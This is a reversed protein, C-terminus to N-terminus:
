LLKKCFLHKGDCSKARFDFGERCFACSIGISECFEEIKKLMKLRLDKKLYWYGGIKEGDKFYLERLMEGFNPISKAIRRFSDRKLKLTSTVVHEPDCKEILDFRNENMFPIIPDFRLVTPLNESIKLFAFIRRETSPAFKELLDCGTISMSVVANMESLVDLDRLVIDSKTVILVKADFERFLKLCERTIEKEKEVPPYPDSSNSMSIVEEGELEELDKKLNQFLAKKERVEWFRPIYTAYCYDCQHACGTYPNFSLKHGCSCFKSKWPDFPNLVRM